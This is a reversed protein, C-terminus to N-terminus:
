VTNYVRNQYLLPLGVAVIINKTQPAIEHLVRRSQALTGPALFADECGYGSICLEPLCLISIKNARAAKIAAIINKQNNEWDLPTQNLSASGVNIYKM